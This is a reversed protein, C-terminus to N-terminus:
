SGQKKRRFIINFFIFVLSCVSVILGIKFSFPFFSMKLKHSGAELYTGRFAHNVRFLPLDKGDSSLRWGPYYVENFFIVAPVATDIQYDISNPDYHTIRGSFGANAASSLMGLKDLLGPDKIDRKDILATRHLDTGSNIDSLVKQDDPLIRAEYVALARFDEAVIGSARSKIFEDYYKLIL